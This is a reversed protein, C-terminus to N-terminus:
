TGIRAGPGSAPAMRGRGATGRAAAALAAQFAPRVRGADHHERALAHARRGLRERAAQNEILRRLAERLSTVGPTAVVHAWGERAAYRTTAIDAPGYVLVPTGSVMYAPVKTPMSLGIYRASRADFNFPLVLLDATALLEHIHAPDPPDALHLGERPARGRTLYASQSRPAHVWLEVPTGSARLSAVADCVDGLGDRQGDPVISGVYRVVFPSGATWSRKARLVWEEMDLANHFPVFAYGYRRRYEECMDACIGLRLSAERLVARFERQVVRRLLPGLVGRRYLVSPWDDMIHIAVPVALRRALERMLRIQAMSGLFGYLLQPRFADLWRALRESIRVTRPVGDGVLQRVLRVRIADTDAESVSLARTGKDRSPRGDSSRVTGGRWSRALSFPWAWHVEEDTLRYFNRCVGHDEQTPDEHLNALRDAPWGRFLNTLTIGGGSMLNFNNSTVVLVRPFDPATM